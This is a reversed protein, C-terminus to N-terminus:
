RHHIISSFFFVVNVIILSFTVSLVQPTEATLLSWVAAAIWLIFIHVYICKVVSTLRYSTFVTFFASIKTLSIGWLWKIFCGKSIKLDLDWHHVLHRQRSFHFYLWNRKSLKIVYFALKLMNSLYFYWNWACM